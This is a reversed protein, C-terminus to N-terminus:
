AVRTGYEQWACGRWGCLGQQEVGVMEWRGGTVMEWEGRWRSDEVWTLDVCKDM